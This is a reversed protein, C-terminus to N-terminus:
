GQGKERLSFPFLQRGEGKKPSPDPTLAPLTPSSPQANDHMEAISLADVSRYNGRM